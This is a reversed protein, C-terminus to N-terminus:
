SYPSQFPPKEVTQSIHLVQPYLTPHNTDQQQNHTQPPRSELNKDGTDETPPTTNQRYQFEIFTQKTFSTTSHNPSSVEGVSDTAGIYAYANLYLSSPYATCLHM